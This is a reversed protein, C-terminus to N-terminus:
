HLAVPINPEEKNRQDTTVEQHAELKALAVLAELSQRYLHQIRPEAHGFGSTVMLDIIEATTTM